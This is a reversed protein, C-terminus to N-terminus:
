SRCLGFRMGFGLYLLRLFFCNRFFSGHIASAVRCLVAVAGVLEVCLHVPVDVDFFFVCRAPARPSSGAFRSLRLLSSLRLSSSVPGFTSSSAAGFASGVRRADRLMFVVPALDAYLVFVVPGSSRVVPSCSCRGTCSTQLFVFRRCSVRRPLLPHSLTRIADLLLLRLPSFVLPSVLLVGIGIRQASRWRKKTTEDDDDDDKKKWFFVWCSAM